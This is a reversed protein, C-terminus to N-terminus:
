AQGRASAEDLALFRITHTDTEPYSDMKIRMHQAENEYETAVHHGPDTCTGFLRWGLPKFDCAAVRAVSFIERLALYLGRNSDTSHAILILPIGTM